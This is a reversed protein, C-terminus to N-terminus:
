TFSEGIGRICSGVRLFSTSLNTFIPTKFFILFLLHAAGVKIIGLFFPVTLNIESKLSNFLHIRLFGNGIEFICSENNLNSPNLYAV